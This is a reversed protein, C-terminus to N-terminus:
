SRRFFALRRPSFERRIRRARKSMGAMELVAALNMAITRDGPMLGHADQACDIAKRMKGGSRATLLGLYSMSRPNGPDAAAARRANELAARARGGELHSRCRRLYEAARREGDVSWAPHRSCGIMRDYDRRRSPDSLTLYAEEIRRRLEEDGGRRRCREQGRWFAREM